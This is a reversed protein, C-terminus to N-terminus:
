EDWFEDGLAIADKEMQVAIKSDMWSNPKDKRMKEYYSWNRKVGTNPAFGARNQPPAQFGERQKPQDLGLTRMLAKPATRALENLSKETLGLEVLQSSLQNQYNTGFVEKLKNQVLRFNETQRKQEDLELVTSSILSKMENQDILPKTTAENALPPASSTLQQQAKMHDILEKISAGSAAEERLRLTDERLQDFRNELIKIYSDSEYKGRALEEPSKFKKGDGVLEELYNKDPDIDVKDPQDQKMLDETM